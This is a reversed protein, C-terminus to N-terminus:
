IFKVEFVKAINKAMEFNIFAAKLVTLYKHYM